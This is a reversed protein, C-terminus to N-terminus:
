GREIGERSRMSWFPGHGLLAGIVFLLRDFGNEARQPMAQRPETVLVRHRPQPALLGLSNGSRFLLAVVKRSDRGTM